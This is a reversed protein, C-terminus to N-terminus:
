TVLEISTAQRRPLLVRLKLADAAHDEAGEEIDDPNSTSRSLVPLTRLLNRCTSFITLGPREQPQQCANELLERVKNWGAVRSGPGKAPRDWRIGVKAMDDAMSTGNRVEFIPDDAPGVFVKGGMHQEAAKVREAIATATLRLGENPKGNWGYDEAIVFLHGRPYSKGSPLQEGNAEAFWLTCFPASSGWDHTRDKRWNLPLAFPECIHVDPRWLDDFMGGAVIDWLGYRWAKILDQRGGAAAIVRSWYLPDAKTLLPNDELRSPIFVRQRYVPQGHEDDGVKALFPRMPPAPDIYRAKVWNHGVGGPNATFRAVCPVGHVSRLTAVLVDLPAPNPWQTIEDGGLWTYSHGQYKQADQVRRVARLRLSGKSPWTWSRDRGLWKAGLPPFLENARHELEELDPSQQVRVLLGRAYKGWQHEHALFDGLLGDSKGGGRAGGFLLDEVPCSLLAQQRLQPSWLCQWSPDPTRRPAM